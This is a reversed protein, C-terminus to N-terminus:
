LSMTVDILNFSIAMSVIPIRRYRDLVTSFCCVLLYVANEGGESSKVGM